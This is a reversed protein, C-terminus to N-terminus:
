DDPNSDGDAPPTANDQKYSDLRARLERVWQSKGAAEAAAIADETAAIAMESRGAQAHIEALVAFELPEAAATQCARTALQVALEDSRFEELPYTALMWAFKRMTVPNDPNLRMAERFHFIAKEYQERSGQPRGSLEEALEEHATSNTPDM